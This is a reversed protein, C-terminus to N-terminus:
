KGRSEGELVRTRVSMGRKELEAVFPAPPMAQEPSWVGPRPRIKEALLLQVAISPPAGTDIDPGVGEGATPGVRCDATVTVRRGARTGLVQARLVEHREPSGALESGPLRGLLDLLLARPGPSAGNRGTTRAFGLQVLFAVKERFAPYFSQRFTVERVGRRRFFAPLTALESHLTTDLELEGLPPPFRDIVRERPDLPLVMRLRGDRFVASALEFEDLVTDPSYPFALPPTSRYRSRDVNGVKVHIADVREMGEAALAALINTIGPSSGMGLIAVQGRERFAKALALQRRTAHFLGGLDV